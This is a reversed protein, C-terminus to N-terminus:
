AISDLSITSGAEAMIAINVLSPPRAGEEIISLLRNSILGLILMFMNITMVIISFFVFICFINRRIVYVPKKKKKASGITGQGEDFTSSRELSRM